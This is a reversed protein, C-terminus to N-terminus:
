FPKDECALDESRSLETLIRALLETLFGSTKPQNGQRVIVLSESPVVVLAQGRVGLAAVTDPPAGPFRYKLDSGGPAFGPNRNLWWLWGYAPNHDQSPQLAQKLYAESLIQRGQWHGRQSVLLGIKVLARANCAGTYYNVYAGGPGEGSELVWEFDGIQLPAFLNEDAFDAVSQGTALELVHFLLHYVASAYVWSSGPSARLPAAANIERQPGEVARVRLGDDTMGSTMSMLHAITISAKDTGRWEPFFDAVSQNESRIEGRDIAIGVLLAIISKAASALQLPHGPTYADAYTECLMQGHHLVLFSASEHALAYASSNPLSGAVSKAAADFSAPMVSGPTRRAFGSDAFARTPAALAAIAYSLGGLVRRRDAKM